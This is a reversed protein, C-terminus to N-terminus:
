DSTQPAEEDPRAGERRARLRGLRIAEDLARQLKELETLPKKQRV